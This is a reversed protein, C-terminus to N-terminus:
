HNLLRRHRKYDGDYKAVLAWFKASHDMHIQHALEHILVYDIVEPPFNVLRWSFNLGGLTSSSGWITGQDKIKISNIATPIGMKAHLQPIRVSIYRRLQQTGFTQLLALEDDTLAATDKPALLYRSNNYILRNDKVQWGTHLDPEYTFELRYPQGFISYNGGHSACHAQRRELQKKIWNEHEHLFKNIVSKTIYPPATVIVHADRDIKVGLRHTHHSIKLQYDIM